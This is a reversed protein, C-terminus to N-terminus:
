FEFEGSEYLKMLDHGERLIRKTSDKIAKYKFNNYIYVSNTDFYKDNVFKLFRTDASIVVTDGMEKEYSLQTKIENTSLGDYNISTLECNLQEALMQREIETLKRDTIVLKM